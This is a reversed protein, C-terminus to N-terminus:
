GLGDGNIDGRAMLKAPLNQLKSMAGQSSRVWIGDTSGYDVILNDPRTDELRASLLKAQSTLEPLGGAEEYVARVESASLAYDYISVSDIDGNFSNGWPYKGIYVDRGRQIGLKGPSPKPAGVLSGDFYINVFSGDYTM